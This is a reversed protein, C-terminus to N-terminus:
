ELKEETIDEEYEDNKIEDLVSRIREMHNIIVTEGDVEIEEDPVAQCKEWDVWLLGHVHAAGRLAFEIKWSNYNVCMTSFKSMVIHKMFKKVRNQFTLTANLLNKRIFEYKSENQSLFEELSQGDVKCEEFGDAEKTYTITHGDLLSTFNEPWKMDACSLTFFFTFPGLNELRAILEGKAKQWYRPTNKVNDLVSCPDTLTYTSSGGAEQNSTGRIGSIGLNSEMQKKEVYATAAFVFSPDNAFSTDKNMIRQVFYNQETLKVDRETHLGNKGDPYLCPFTKIDWDSEQLVNTPVKGEGPAVNHADNREDKYSIEPYNNSFCTSKNYDFQFKRVADKTLYEHEEEDNEDNDSEDDTLEPQLNSDKFNDKKKSETQSEKEENSAENTLDDVITQEDLNDAEDPYLLNFGEQDSIKCKEKFDLTEPIFQYYKHGLKKLTQLAKFVKEM